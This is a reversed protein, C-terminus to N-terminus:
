HKNRHRLNFKQFIIELHDIPNCAGQMNLSPQISNSMKALEHRKGSGLRKGLICHWNQELVLSM